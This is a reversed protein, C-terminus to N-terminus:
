KKSSIEMIENLFSNVKENRTRVYYDWIAKYLDGYVKYAEVDVGKEAVFPVFQSGDNNYLDIVYMKKREETEKYQTIELYGSKLDLHDRFTHSTPHWECKDKNTLDILVRCFSIIDIKETM